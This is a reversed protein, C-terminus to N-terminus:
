IKLIFETHVKNKQYGWGNNLQKVKTEDLSDFRLTVDYNTMINYRNEGKASRTDSFTQSFTVVYDFRLSFLNLCIEHAYSIELSTCMRVRSKNSFLNLCIEHAYTYRRPSKM